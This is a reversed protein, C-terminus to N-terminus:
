ATRVQQAARPRPQRSFPRTTSPYDSRRIAARPVPGRARRRRPSFPSAQRGPWGPVPPLLSGARAACTSPAGESLCRSIPAAGRPRWPMIAARAVSAPDELRRLSAYRFREARSFSAFEPKANAHGLVCTRSEGAPGLPPTHLIRTAPPAPRLDLAGRTTANAASNRLGQQRASSCPSNGGQQSKQVNGSDIM